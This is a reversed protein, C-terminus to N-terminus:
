VSFLLPQPQMSARHQPYNRIRLLLFHFPPHLFSCLSSCLLKYEQGINNSTMLFLYTFCATFTDLMTFFLVHACPKTQFVQLFASAQNINACFHLRPLLNVRFTWWEDILDCPKVDCCVVTKVTVTVLVNCRVCCFIYKLEWLILDNKWTCSVKDVTVSCWPWRPTCFRLYRM